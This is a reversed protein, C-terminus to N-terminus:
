TLSLGLAPWLIADSPTQLGDSSQNAALQKNRPSSDHMQKSYTHKLLLIRSGALRAFPRSAPQLSEGCGNKCHSRGHGAEGLLRGYL